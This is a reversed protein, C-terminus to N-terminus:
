WRSSSAKDVSAASPWRSRRTGDLRKPKGRSGSRRGLSTRTRDIGDGVRPATHSKVPQTM